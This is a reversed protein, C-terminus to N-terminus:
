IFDIVLKKLANNGFQSTQQKKFYVKILTNCVTYIVLNLISM